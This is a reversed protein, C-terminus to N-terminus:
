DPALASFVAAGFRSGRSPATSTSTSRSRSSMLLSMLAADPLYPPNSPPAGRPGTARAMAGHTPPSRQIMAAGSPEIFVKADPLRSRLRARSQTDRRGDAGLTAQGTPRDYASLPSGPHPRNSDSAFGAETIWIWGRAEDVWLGAVENRNGPMNYMQFANKGPNYRGVRSHNKTGASGLHEGGQTFWVTGDDAVKVSEGLMSINTARNNHRFPTGNIPITTRVAAPCPDTNAIYTIATHFEGLAWANGAADLDIALVVGGGDAQPASCHANLWFEPSNGFFRSLRLAMAASLARKENILEDVTQRSVKIAEALDAVSLDYDPLFDERIFEGPHTPRVLLPMTIPWPTRFNRKRRAGCARVVIAGAGRSGSIQVVM